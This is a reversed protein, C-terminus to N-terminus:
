RHEIESKRHVIYSRFVRSGRGEVGTEKDGQRRTKGRPGEVRSEEGEVRSPLAM